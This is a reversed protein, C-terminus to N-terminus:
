PFNINSMINIPCLYGYGVKPIEARGPKNNLNPKGDKQTGNLFNFVYITLQSVVCIHTEDQYNVEYYKGINM